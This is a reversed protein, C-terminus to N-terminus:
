GAAAKQLGQFVGDVVASLIPYAQRPFLSQLHTIVWQKKQAGQGATTFQADAAQILTEAWTRLREDRIQDAAHKVLLCTHYVAGIILALLAKQALPWVLGALMSLNLTM